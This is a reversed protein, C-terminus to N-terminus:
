SFSDLGFDDWHSSSFSNMLHIEYEELYWTANLGKAFWILLGQTCHAGDSPSASFKQPGSSTFQLTLIKWPMRLLLLWLWLWLWLRMWLWLWLSLPLWLRLWLWLWLGAQPLWLRLLLWLWLGPRWLRLKWLRPRWLLKRLLWVHHQNNLNNKPPPSYLHRKLTSIEGQLPSKIHGWQTHSGGYVNMSNALKEPGTHTIQQNYTKPIVECANLLYAKNWWM